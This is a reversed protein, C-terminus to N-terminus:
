EGAYTGLKPGQSVLLSLGVGSDGNAADCLADRQVDILLQVAGDQGDPQDGHVAPEM